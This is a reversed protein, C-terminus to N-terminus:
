RKFGQHCVECQNYVKKLGVRAGELNNERALRAVELASDRVETSAQRWRRDMRMQGFANAQEALVYALQELEGARKASKADVYCGDMLLMWTKTSGFPEFDTVVIKEGAPMNKALDALIRQCEDANKACAAADKARASRQLQECAAQLAAIKERWSPATSRYGTLQTLVALGQIAEGASLFDKDDLWDRVLKLNSELVRHLAAAPAVPSYGTSSPAQDAASRWGPAAFLGSGILVLGAFRRAAMAIGELLSDALTDPIEHCNV